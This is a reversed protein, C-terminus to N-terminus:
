KNKTIGHWWGDDPCTLAYKNEVGNTWCLMGKKAESMKKKWDESKPWSRGKKAESMKKKTEESHKRGILSKSIKNKTEKSKAKGKRGILSKSIKNKTEKSKAKGKNTLSAHIGKPIYALNYLDNNLRNDDQHHVDYGKIYGYKTHAQICHVHMSIGDIIVYPRGRSSVKEELVNGASDTIMGTEPHIFYDWFVKNKYRIM